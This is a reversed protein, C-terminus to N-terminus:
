AKAFLHYALFPVFRGYKKTWNLFHFLKGAHSSTKIPKYTQHRYEFKQTQRGKCAFNAMFWFYLIVSFIIRLIKWVVELLGFLKVNRKWFFNCLVSTFLTSSVLLYYTDLTVSVVWFANPATWLLRGCLIAFFQGGGWTQMPEVRRTRKDTRVCWLNRFTRNKKCWFTRVDAVSITRV